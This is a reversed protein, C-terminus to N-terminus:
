GSPTEKKSRFCADGLKKLNQVSVAFRFSIRVWIEVVASCDLTASLLTTEDVITTQTDIYM